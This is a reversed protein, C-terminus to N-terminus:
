GASPPSAAQETRENAAGARRRLPTRAALGGVVVFAVGAVGLWIGADALLNTARSSWQELWVIARPLGAGSLTATWFVVISVGALVLVVGSVRNVHRSARRLWGIVARKGLALAMTVVLLLVSMGLGYVLFTLVGALLGAQTMTSAVVALFVPLTCSLSAIAYSVGFLVVGGLGDGDTGRGLKPLSATPAYGALMAVGLGAVGVGVVMAAWPVADAVLQTGLTLLAGAVGFVALFGVSVAAGVRLGQLVSVATSTPRAPDTDDLGLFFSLYAPLMAFGCPNVTAVLGATFALAVPIEM